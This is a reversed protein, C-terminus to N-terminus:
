ILLDNVKDSTEAQGGTGEWVRLTPFLCHELRRNILLVNAERFALLLYNSAVNSNHECNNKLVASFYMYKDRNPSTWM